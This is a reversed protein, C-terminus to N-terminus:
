TFLSSAKAFTQFIKYVRKTDPDIDIRLFHEGKPNLIRAKAEPALTNYLKGIEDFARGVLAKSAPDPLEDIIASIKSDRREFFLEHVGANFVTVPKGFKRETSDLTDGKPISCSTQYQYGLSAQVHITGSSFLLGIIM